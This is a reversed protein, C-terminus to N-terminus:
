ITGSALIDSLAEGALFRTYPDEAFMLQQLGDKAVQGGIRTIAQSVKHKVQRNEDAKLVELLMEVYTDDGLTGLVNAATMRETPDDSGHIVAAAAQLFQHRLKAKDTQDTM